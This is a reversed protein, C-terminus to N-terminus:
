GKYFPYPAFFIVWLALVIGTYKIARFLKPNKKKFRKSRERGRANLAFMRNVFGM